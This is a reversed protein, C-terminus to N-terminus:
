EAHSGWDCRECRRGLKRAQWEAVELAQRVTTWCGIGNDSDMKRHYVIPHHRWLQRQEVIVIM